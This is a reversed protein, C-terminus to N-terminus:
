TKQCYVNRAHLPTAKWPGRNDDDPNKFASDQKSARPVLNIDWKDIKKAFVLIHDHMESFNRASNKVTYIKQWEIQTVFNRAGFIEDMLLRLAAVENDDISIFIVADERLFQRLLLLRPYMM